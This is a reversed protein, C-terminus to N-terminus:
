VRREVVMAAPLMVQLRVLASRACTQPCDEQMEDKGLDLQIRVRIEVDIHSRCLIEYFRFEYKDTQLISLLFAQKAGISTQNEATCLRTWHLHAAVDRTTLLAIYKYTKLGLDGNIVEQGM